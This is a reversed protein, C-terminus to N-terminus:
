QIPGILGDRLRKWVRKVDPDNSMPGSSGTACPIATWIFAAEVLGLLGAIFLAEQLFVDTAGSRELEERIEMGYRYAAQLASVILREVVELDLEDAVIQTATLLRAQIPTIFSGVLQDPEHGTM